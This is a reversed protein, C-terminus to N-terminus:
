RTALHAFEECSSFTDAELVLEVVGNAHVAAVIARCLNGEDDGAILHAGPEVRVRGEAYKLLTTTRELEDVDNFDVWIERDM